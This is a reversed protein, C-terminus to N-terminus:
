GQGPQCLVHKVVPQRRDTVKRVPSLTDEVQVWPDSLLEHRLLSFLVSQTNQELSAKLAPIYIHLTPSM